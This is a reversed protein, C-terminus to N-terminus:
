FRVLFIVQIITASNCDSAYAGSAYAGSAYAGSAYAGNLLM